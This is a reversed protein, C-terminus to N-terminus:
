FPKFYRDLLWNTQPLSRRFSGVPKHRALTKRDLAESAVALETALYLQRRQTEKEVIRQLLTLWAERPVDPLHACIGAHIRQAVMDCVLLNAGCCDAAVALLSEKKEELAMMSDCQSLAERLIERIRQRTKATTRWAARHDMAIKVEGSPSSSRTVSRGWISSSLSDNPSIPAHHRISPLLPIAGHRHPPVMDMQAEEDSLSSMTSRQRACAEEHTTDPVCPQSGVLASVHHSYSKSGSTWPRASSSAMLQQMGGLHGGPGVPWRMKNLHKQRSTVGQAEARWVTLCQQLEEVSLFPLEEVSLFPVSQSNDDIEPVHTPSAPRSPSSQAVVPIEEESVFFYERRNPLSEHSTFQKSVFKAVPDIHRHRHHGSDRVALPPPAAAPKHLAWPLTVAVDDAVGDGHAMVPSRGKYM